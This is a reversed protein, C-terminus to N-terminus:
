DDDNCGMGTNPPEWGNQTTGLRNSPERGNQTTGLRTQRNGDTNPPEWGHKVTGLLKKLAQKTKLYGMRLLLGCFVSFSCSIHAGDGFVWEGGWGFMMVCFFSGSVHAGMARAWRDGGSSAGETSASM